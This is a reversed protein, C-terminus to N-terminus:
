DVPINSAVWQKLKTKFKPLYTICRIEAPINNYQGASRYCFSDQTRSLTSPFSEAYRIGGSTAQRTRYPHSTSIKQALYLPSGSKVIKHTLIVSQYFILQKVSLWNCKKLLVQTPNLSKSFSLFGKSLRM